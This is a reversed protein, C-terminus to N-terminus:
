TEEEETEEDEEGEDYVDFQITEDDVGLENLKMRCSTGGSHKTHWLFLRRVIETPYFTTCFAEERDMEIDQWELWEKFRDTLEQMLAICGEYIDKESHSSTNDTIRSPDGGGVANLIDWMQKNSVTSILNCDELYAYYEHSVGIEDAVQEATKGTAERAVRIKDGRLKEYIM